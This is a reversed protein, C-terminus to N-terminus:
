FLRCIRPFIFFKLQRSSYVLSRHGLSSLGLWFCVSLCISLCIHPTAPLYRLTTFLLDITHPGGLSIALSCYRELREWGSGTGYIGTSHEHTSRKLRGPCGSVHAARLDEESRGVRSSEYWGKQGKKWSGGLWAPWGTVQALFGLGCKFFEYVSLCNCM